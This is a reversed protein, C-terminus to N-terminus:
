TEEKLELLTQVQASPAQLNFVPLPPAQHVQPPVRARAKVQCAREEVEGTRNKNLRQGTWSKTVRHVAACWAERDKVM